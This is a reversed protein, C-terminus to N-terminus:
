STRFCARITGDAIGFVGGDADPGCGILTLERLGGFRTLTPKEYSTRSALESVDEPHPMTRKRTLSVSIECAVASAVVIGSALTADVPNRPTAQAMQESCGGPVWLRAAVVM